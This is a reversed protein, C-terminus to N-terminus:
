RQMAVFEAPQVGSECRGGPVIFQCVAVWSGPYRVGTVWWRLLLCVHEFRGQRGEGALLQRDRLCGGAPAARGSDKTPVLVDHPLCHDSQGTPLFETFVLIGALCCNVDQLSPDPEAGGTVCPFARRPIQEDNGVTAM